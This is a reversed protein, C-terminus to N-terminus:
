PASPGTVPTDVVIKENSLAGDDACRVVYSVRADYNRIYGLFDRGSFWGRYFTRSIFKNTTWSRAV